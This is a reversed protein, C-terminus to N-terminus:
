CDELRKLPADRYAKTDTRRGGRGVFTPRPSLRQYVEVSFEFLSAYAMATECNM